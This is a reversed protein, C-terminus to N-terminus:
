RRRLRAAFYGDAGAQDLGITEEHELTWEAGHGALFREVQSINERPLLSCTAYLMKGGPKVMSSYSALIGRQMSELHELEQPTLKWKLDPRRRLVGLGSCPVDLLLRDASRALAEITGRGLIPATSIITAGARAARRDLEALRMPSLDLAHIRGRNSMLAALHLSKGGAGACADIVVHGPATELMPALRQSGLDQVEFWGEGSAPHMTINKREALVLADPVDPITNTIIGDVALRTRLAAATTKLTNVRLFVRAPANMAGRIAPWEAGLSEAGLAEIWDPLSERVAPPVSQHSRAEVAPADVGRCEPFDPKGEGQAIRWAAWVRWITKISLAEPNLYGAVPEGALHWAWRWWRVLDYVAEAFQRRDRAGWKRQGRLAREVVREAPQGRAFIEHLAAVITACHQHHLKLPAQGV